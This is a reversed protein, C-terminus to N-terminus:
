SKRDLRQLRQRAACAQATQPLERVLRNLLDRGKDRDQKYKLQWAAM